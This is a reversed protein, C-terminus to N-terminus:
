DVFMPFVMLVQLFGSVQPLDSVFKVPVDDEGSFDYKSELTKDGTEKVVVDDNDVNESLSKTRIIPKRIRRKSPKNYSDDDIEMPEEIDVEQVNKNESVSV